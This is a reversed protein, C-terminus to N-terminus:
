GVPFSPTTPVFDADVANASHDIALSDTIRADYPLKPIDYCLKTSPVWLSRARIPCYVRHACIRCTPKRARRAIELGLAGYFVALAYLWHPLSVM